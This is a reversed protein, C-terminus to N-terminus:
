GPVQSHLQFRFKRCVGLVKEWQAEAKAARGERPLIDAEDDYEVRCNELQVVRTNRSEEARFTAGLERVAERFLRYQEPTLRRDTLRQSKM